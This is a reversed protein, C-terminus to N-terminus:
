GSSKRHVVGAPVVSAPAVGAPVVGLSVVGHREVSQLEKLRGGASRAEGRAQTEAPVGQLRAPPASPPNRQLAREQEWVTPIPGPELLQVIRATPAERELGERAAEGVGQWNLVPVPGNAGEQYTVCVIGRLCEALDPGTMGASRLMQLARSVSLTPVQLWLASELRGERLREVVAPRHRGSVMVVTPQQSLLVEIGSWDIPTSGEPAGIGDLSEESVLRHPSELNNRMGQVFRRFSSRDEVGLLWLGPVVAEHRLASQSAPALSLFGADGELALVVTPGQRGPGVAVSGQISPFRLARLKPGGEGAGGIAELVVSRLVSAPPSATGFMAADLSLEQWRHEQWVFVREGDLRFRRVGSRLQTHLFLEVKDRVSSSAGPDAGAALELEARAEVEERPGYLATLANVILSPPAVAVNLRLGTWQEVARLAGHALPDDTVVSLEGESLLLPVIHHDWALKGPVRAMARLDLFEARTELSAVCPINLQNALCWILMEESIAGQRVLIEGIRGGERRQVELAQVLAEASVMGYRLLMSGLSEHAAVQGM